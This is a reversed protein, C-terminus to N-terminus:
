MSSRYTPAFALFICVFDEGAAHLRRAKKLQQSRIDELNGM